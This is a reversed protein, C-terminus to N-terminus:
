PKSLLLLLESALLIAKSNWERRNADMLFLMVAHLRRRERHETLIHEIRIWVLSEGYTMRKESARCGHCVTPKIEQTHTHTHTHTHTGWLQACTSASTLMLHRGWTSETMSKSVLMWVSYTAWKNLRV